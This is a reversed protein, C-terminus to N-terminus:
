NDLFSPCSFKNTHITKKKSEVKKNKNHFMEEARDVTGQLNEPISYDRKTITPNLFLPL